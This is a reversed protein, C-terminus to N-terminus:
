APEHAGGEDAATSETTGTEATSTEATGPVRDKCCKITGEPPPKACNNPPLCVRDFQTTGNLPSPDDVGDQQIQQIVLRGICRGLKVGWVHDSRWHIGAWLRAIGCNDALDDFDATYDPFFYSLVESATAAHTSHGAPYSPHRPTGPSPDPLNRRL